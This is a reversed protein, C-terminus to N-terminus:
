VGSVSSNSLSECNSLVSRGDDQSRRLSEKREEEMKKRELSRLGVYLLPVVGCLIAAAM